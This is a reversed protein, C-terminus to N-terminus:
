ESIVVLVNGCVNFVLLDNASSRCAGTLTHERTRVCVSVCVFVVGEMKAVCM